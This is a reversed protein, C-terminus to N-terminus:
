AANDGPSGEVGPSAAKSGAAPEKSFFETKHEAVISEVRLVFMDFAEQHSLHSKYVGTQVLFKRGESKLRELTTSRRKWNSWSQFLALLGTSLASVLGLGALIWRNLESTSNISVGALM